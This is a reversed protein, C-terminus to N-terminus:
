IFALDCNSIAGGIGWHQDSNFTVETKAKWLDDFATFLFIRSPDAAFERKISDLAKKQNELGPVALGNATGRTPWGTETVIIDMPKSLSAKVNRIERRLWKGSGEPRATSDFFPHANIACFDSRECLEPHAQVAVFTDVTVVPGKYGAKRLRQRARGVADTVQSATAQGNNVLENGVSISHVRSWDKGIANAILDTEENVRNIDWVGLMVKCGIAKAAANVNRVQDCDTGYIRVVSYDGKLRQFDNMIEKATKCQHDARYPAYSIGIKETRKATPSVDKKGGQVPAKKGGQVLAPSPKPQKGGETPAPVTTIFTVFVTETEASRKTISATATSEDTSLSTPLVMIMETRTSLPAGDAGAVAVEGLVITPAALNADFM